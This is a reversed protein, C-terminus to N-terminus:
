LCRSLKPNILIVVESTPISNVFINFTAIFPNSFNERVQWGKPILYGQYEIDELAKRFGGFLPPFARLTEMAVRWTYKMNGLDEWTM